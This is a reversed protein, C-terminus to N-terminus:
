KDSSPSSRAFVVFIFFVGLIITIVISYIFNLVLGFWDILPANSRWLNFPLSFAEQDPVSAGDTPVNPALLHCRAVKEDIEKSVGGYREAYRRSDKGFDSQYFDTLFERYKRKAEDPCPPLRREFSYYSETTYGSMPNHVFISIVVVSFIIGAIIRQAQNFKNLYENFPM